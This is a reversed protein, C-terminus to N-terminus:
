RSAESTGKHHRAWASSCHSHRKCFGKLNLIFTGESETPIGTSKWCEGVLKTLEESPLAGLHQGNMWRLKTSYFIAGGKNVCGISFNEVLQELIFFENKTGDGWRFTGFLEGNSPTSVGDGQVILHYYHQGVSTAGHRKSLKSRDPALILSVHAFSPMSFGLAKYILAQRLTNPLNEEARIVHSIAMTADDVTVCFNYVPQGNSRMIVFDGLTDLNWSVKM